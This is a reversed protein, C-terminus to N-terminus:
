VTGEPLNQEMNAAIATAIRRAKEAYPGSYHEDLTARFLSLWREFDAQTLPRRAHLARHINMTHRRYGQQGLLLKCWYNKIHPLHEDLDIAAVDLFVPALQEDALVRQYFQDVFQEVNQRCDLDPLAPGTM